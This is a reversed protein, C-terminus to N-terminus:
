HVASELLRSNPVFKLGRNIYIKAKPKNGENLYNVAISNYTREIIFTLMQNNIPLTCKNEFEILNKEGAAFNKEEFLEMVIKLGAILRHESLLPKIM